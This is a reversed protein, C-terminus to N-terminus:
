NFAKAFLGCASIYELAMEQRSGVYFVNRGGRRKSKSATVVNSAAEAWTLGTRRSKEAIKVESEDEFWRAQYGLLVPENAPFHDATQLDELGDIKDAM